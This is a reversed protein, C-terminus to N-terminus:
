SGVVCCVGAKLLINSVQMNDGWEDGFKELCPFVCFLFHHEALVDSEDVSDDLDNIAEMRRNDFVYSRDNDQTRFFEVQYRAKQLVMTRQLDSAASLISMLASQSHPTLNISTLTFLLHGIEGSIKHLLDTRGRQLLMGLESKEILRVTARRWERYEPGTDQISEAFSRIAALPGTHPLGVVIPEELVQMLANTVLAQYLSLRDSKEISEYAPTLSRLAKVTVPPLQTTDTKTRRFNSIVWERIRNFLQTFSDTLNSDTIQSDPRTLSSISSKLSLLQQLRDQSEKETAHLRIRLENWEPEGDHSLARELKSRYMVDQSVLQEQLQDLRYRLDQNQQHVDEISQASPLNAKPTELADLRSQGDAHDVQLPANGTTSGHGDRHSRAKDIEEKMAVQEERAISLAKELEAVREAMRAEVEIAEESQQSATELGADQPAPPKDSRAVADDGSRRRLIDNLPNRRRHVEDKKSSSAAIAARPPSSITSSVPRSTKSLLKKGSKVNLRSALDPKDSQYDVKTAAAVERHEGSSKKEGGATMTTVSRESILTASRFCPGDCHRCSTALTVVDHVLPAGPGVSSSAIGPCACAWYGRMSCGRVRPQRDDPSCSAPRRRYM